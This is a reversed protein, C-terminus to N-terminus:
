PRGDTSMIAKDTRKEEPYEGVEVRIKMSSDSFNLKFRIM